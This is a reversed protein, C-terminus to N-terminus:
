KLIHIVQETEAVIQYLYVLINICLQVSNFKFLYFSDILYCQFSSSFLNIFNFLYIKQYLSIIEFYQKINRGSNVAQM